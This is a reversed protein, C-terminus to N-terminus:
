VACICLSTQAKAPRVYWMTPFRMARSLYYKIEKKQLDNNLLCHLRWHFMANKPIEDLDESNALGFNNCIIKSRNNHCQGQLITNTTQVNTHFRIMITGSLKLIKPFVSPRVVYFLIGWWLCRINTLTEHPM